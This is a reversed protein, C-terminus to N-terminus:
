GGGGGGEKMSETEDARMRRNERSNKTKNSRKWGKAGYKNIEEKKEGERERKEEVRKGHKPKGKESM